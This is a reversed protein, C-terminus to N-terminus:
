FVRCLPSLEPNQMKESPLYFTQELAFQGQLAAHSVVDTFVIWSSQAPFAVKTKAVSAQYADDLKMSDHLHLMRHDYESRKSKTLRLQHMLTALLPHYPPIHHKFQSIVHDFNEGLHWTRALGEPHINSFVRLIRKGQLPTSPFADVHLRTDDKRKSSHRGQIQAPRFSTRGVELHPTYDPFFTNVWQSSQHYFRNLLSKLVPLLSPDLQKAGGIGLRLPHASINKHSGDLIAPNFLPQEAPLVDFSLDPCFIVQGHELRSTLTSDAPEHLATPAVPHAYLADQM